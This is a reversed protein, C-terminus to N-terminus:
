LKRFQNVEGTSKSLYTYLPTLQQNYKYFDTRPDSDYLFKNYIQDYKPCPAEDQYLIQTFSLYDCFISFYGFHETSVYDRDAPIISVPIPQWHLPLPNDNELPPMLGALLSQVSMLCRELNSSVVHMDNKSYLGDPPLLHEYRSRLLVGINFM